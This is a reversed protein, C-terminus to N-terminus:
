GRLYICHAPNNLTLEEGDDRPSGIENKRNCHISMLIGPRTLRNPYKAQYLRATSVYYTIELWLAETSLLTVVSTLYYIKRPTTKHVHKRCRIAALSSRPVIM